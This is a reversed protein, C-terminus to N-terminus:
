FTQYIEIDLVCKKVLDYVQESPIEIDGFNRTRVVIDSLESEEM